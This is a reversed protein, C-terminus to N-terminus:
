LPWQNQIVNPWADANLARQLKNGNRHNFPPLLQSLQQIFGFTTKVWNTSRIAIPHCPIWARILRFVFWLDNRKISNEHLAIHTLVTSCVRKPQISAMEADFPHVVVVLFTGRISTSVRPLGFVPLIRKVLLWGVLMIKVPFFGFSYLEM